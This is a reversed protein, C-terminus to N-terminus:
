TGVSSVVLSWVMHAVQSIALVNQILLRVEGTNSMPWQARADSDFAAACHRGGSRLRERFLTAGYPALAGRAFV